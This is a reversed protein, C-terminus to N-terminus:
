CVFLGFVLFADQVPDVGFVLGALEFPLLGDEAVPDAAFGVGFEWCLLSAIVETLRMGCSM